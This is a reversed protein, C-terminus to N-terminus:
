EPKTGAHRRLLGVLTKLPPDGQLTKYYVGFSVPPVDRVPLRAVPADPPIFLDPLLSVGFGAQVQRKYM